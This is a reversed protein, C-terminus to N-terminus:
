YVAGPGSVTANHWAPGHQLEVWLRVDDRDRLDLVFETYEVGYETTQRPAKRQNLERWRDGSYIRKDEDTFRLRGTVSLQRAAAGQLGLAASALAKRYARIYSEPTTVGRGALKLCGGACAAARETAERIVHWEMGVATVCWHRARRGTDASRVNTDGGLEMVIYFDDVCGTSEKALKVAEIRDTIHTSM